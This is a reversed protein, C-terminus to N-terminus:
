GEDTIRRFAAFGESVMPAIVEAPFSQPFNIEDGEGTYGDIFTVNVLGFPNDSKVRILDGNFHMIQIDDDSNVTHLMWADFYHRTLLRLINRANRGATAEAFYADTREQMGQRYAPNVGVYTPATQSASKEAIIKKCEDCCVAGFPNEELDFIDCQTSNKGCATKLEVFTSM